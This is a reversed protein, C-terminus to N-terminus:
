TMIMMSRAVISDLDDGWDLRNSSSHACLARRDENSTPTAVNSGMCDGTKQCFVVIDNHHVIKDVRGLNREIGDCLNSFQGVFFALFAQDKMLGINAIFRSKTLDKLAGWGKLSANV